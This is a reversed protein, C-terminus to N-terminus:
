ELFFAIRLAFRQQVSCGLGFAMSCHLLRFFARRHQPQLPQFPFLLMDVCDPPGQCTKFRLAEGASNIVQSSAALIMWSTGAGAEVVCSSIRRCNMPSAKDWRKAEAGGAAAATKWWAM